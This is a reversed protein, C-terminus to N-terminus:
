TQYAPVVATDITVTLSSSTGINGAIDTQKVTYVYDGDTTLDTSDILTVTGGTGTPFHCCNVGRYLEVLAGNETNPIDFTRSLHM